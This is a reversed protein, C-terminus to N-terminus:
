KNPNVVGKIYIFAKKPNGNTKVTVRKTFGGPRGLPNYTVKIVGKKGPAIPAQPYEPITCGCEAQADIIILPKEGTNVFEFQHTVVGKREPITGFNYSTEQFKIQAKGKKAEAPVAMLLIMALLAVISLTKKM